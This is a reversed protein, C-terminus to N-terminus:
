LKRRDLLEEETEIYSLLFREDPRSNAVEYTFYRGVAAVLLKERYQDLEATRTVTATAPWEHAAVVTVDLVPTTSGTERNYGLYLQILDKHAAPQGMHDVWSRWYSPIGGVYWLGGSPDQSLAVDPVINVGTNSLVRRVDITGDTHVVELRMQQMDDGTTYLGGATIVLNVGSGAQITGSAPVGHPLAGRRLVPDYENIYGDTEGFVLRPFRDFPTM